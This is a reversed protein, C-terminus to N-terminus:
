ACTLCIYLFGDIVYKQKFYNLLYNRNLVNKVIKKYLSVPAILTKCLIVPLSKLPMQVAVNELWSIEYCVKHM